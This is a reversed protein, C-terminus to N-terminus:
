LQRGDVAAAARVRDAIGIYTSFSSGAAASWRATLNEGPRETSANGIRVSREELSRATHLRFDEKWMCINTVHIIRISRASAGARWFAFPALSWDESWGGRCDRM